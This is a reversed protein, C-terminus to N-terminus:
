NESAGRLYEFCRENVVESMALRAVVFATESTVIIRLIM